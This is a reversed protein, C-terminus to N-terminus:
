AFAFSLQPSDEPEEVQEVQLSCQGAGEAIAAFEEVPFELHENLWFASEARGLILPMRDNLSAMAANAPVTLIACTTGALPHQDFIGALLLPKGRAQSVRMKRKEGGALAQWEFFATAPILCRNRKLIKSYFPTTALGESSLNILPSRPERDLFSGVLGWRANGALYGASNGTFILLSDTPQMEEAGPMQRQALRLPQFHRSLDKATAKLEYRRCM